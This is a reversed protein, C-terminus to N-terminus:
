FATIALIHFIFVISGPVIEKTAAVNGATAIINTVFLPRGPATFGPFTAGFRLAHLTAGFRLAHLTAGFRPGPAPSCTGLGLALRSTGFGPRPAGLGLWPAGLGLLPARHLLLDM